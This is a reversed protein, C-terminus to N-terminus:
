KLPWGGQEEIAEDVATMLRITDSLAVVTKQYHQIDVPPEQGLYETLMLSVGETIDFVNKDEGGDPAREKKNSNGHLDYIYIESFSRM